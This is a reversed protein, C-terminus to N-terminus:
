LGADELAQRAYERDKTEKFTPLGFRKGPKCLGCGCHIKGKSYKGHVKYWDNGYVSIAIGRKRSIAKNRENRTYARSRSM